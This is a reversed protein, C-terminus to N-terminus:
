ARREHRWGWPRGCGRWVGSLMSRCRRKEVGLLDAVESLSWDFCYVLMVVIRQKESLRAIAAPLQPEVDPLRQPLVDFFAPRRRLSM